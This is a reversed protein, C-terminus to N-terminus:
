SLEDKRRIKCIKQYHQIIQKYLAVKYQLKNIKSYNTFCM